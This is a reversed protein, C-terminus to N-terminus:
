ELFGYFVFCHIASKKKWIISAKNDRLFAHNVWNENQIGVASAANQKRWMTKLGAFIDRYEYAGGMPFGLIELHM